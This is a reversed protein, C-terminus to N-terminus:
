GGVLLKRGSERVVKSVNERIMDGWGRIGKSKSKVVDICPLMHRSELVIQLNVGDGVLILEVGDDLVHM